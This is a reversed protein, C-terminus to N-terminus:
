ARDESLYLGEADIDMHVVEAGAVGGEVAEVGEREVGDFDVAGEYVVYALAAVVGGNDVGDNNEGVVKLHFDDGFANFGGVM